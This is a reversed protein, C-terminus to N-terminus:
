SKSVCPLSFFFTSGKGPQSRLELSQGHLDMLAKSIALGLGTGKPGHVTSRAGRVQEFRNFIKTQNEPAIGLGNDCVRVELKGQATSSHFEVHVYGGQPTFKMANSVLNILVQRIKEPDGMVWVPATQGLVAHSLQKEQLKLGFFEFVDHALAVVDFPRPELSIKGRELAAVDLLDNVFQTLRQTNVRLRDLYLAWVERPPQEQLEEAILHLYSEMAGLPSRLEHTVASVFDEKLADLESLRRTMREFARALVGLEDQRTFHIGGPLDRQGQAIQASWETLQRIPRAWSKSIGLSMALGVGLAIGAVHRLRRQLQARRMWLLDELYRESFTLAVTGVPRNGLLLPQSLILTPTDPQTKNRLNQGIRAPQSHSRVRGQMDMVSASVIFPHSEALWRTYKVLLLDDETLFSEAAIQCLSQLLVKREAQAEQRMHRQEVWYFCATVSVVTGIVLASIALALKPFLRM